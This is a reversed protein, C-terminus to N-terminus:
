CSALHPLVPFNLILHSQKRFANSETVNYERHRRESPPEVALGLLMELRPQVNLIVQPFKSIVIGVGATLIEPLPVCADANNSAGVSKLCFKIGEMSIKIVQLSPSQPLIYTALWLDGGGSCSSGPFPLCLCFALSFDTAALPPWLASSGPGM